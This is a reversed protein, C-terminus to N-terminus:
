WWCVKARTWGAGPHYRYYSRHHKYMFEHPALAQYTIYTHGVHPPINTRPSPYMGAGVGGAKPAVYYNYFLYPESAPPQIGQARVDGTTALAGCFAAAGAALCLTRRLASPM